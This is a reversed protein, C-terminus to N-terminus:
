ESYRGFQKPTHELERSFANALGNGHMPAETSAMPSAPRSAKWLALARQGFEKPDDTGLTAMATKTFSESFRQDKCFQVCAYRNKEATFDAERQAMAEERQALETERRNLAEERDPDIGSKVRAIREQIIQNLEAQTFLRESGEGTNDERTSNSPQQELQEMNQDESM